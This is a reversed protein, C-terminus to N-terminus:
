RGVLTLNLIVGEPTCLSKLRIIAWIPVGAREGLCALNNKPVCCLINEEV